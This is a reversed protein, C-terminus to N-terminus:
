KELPKRLILIVGSATNVKMKENSVPVPSYGLYRCALGPIFLRLPLTLLKGIKSERCLLKEFCSFGYEGFYIRKVEELGSPIILRQEIGKVDYHRQYFVKGGQSTDGYVSGDVYFDAAFGENVPTTLIYLGGPKLLKASKNMAEADTDDHFHEIVSINTIIDFSEPKLETTLFDQEIIHFRSKQEDDALRTVYDNQARVWSFKDVCTIDWSTNLLLWTPLPSEGGSGIDLYKRAENFDRSLTELIYPLEACREYPIGKIRFVRKLRYYHSQIKQLFDRNIKQVM